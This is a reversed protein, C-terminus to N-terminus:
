KRIVISYTYLLLDLFMSQNELKNPSVEPFTTDLFHLIFSIYPQIVIYYLVNTNVETLQVM